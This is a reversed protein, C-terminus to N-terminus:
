DNRLWHLMWGLVKTYILGHTVKLLDTNFQVWTHWYETFVWNCLFQLIPWVKNDQNLASKSKSNWHAINSVSGIEFKVIPWQFPVLTLVCFHKGEVGCYYKILEPTQVFAIDLPPNTSCRLWVLTCLLTNGFEYCHNSHGHDCRFSCSLMLKQEVFLCRYFM